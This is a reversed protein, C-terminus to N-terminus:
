EKLVVEWLATLAAESSASQRVVRWISDIATKGFDDFVAVQSKGRYFRLTDLGYAPSADFVDALKRAQRLYDRAAEERGLVLSYRACTALLAAVGKNLYCPADPKIMGGIATCLWLLVDLATQYEGVAAYATAFGTLQFLTIMLRRQAESLFAFSEEARDHEALIFGIQGDNLGEINYHKLQEVAADTEGLMLYVSAIRNRLRTEHISPDTNQAILECARNFLDLARRMAHKDHTELATMAYLDASQYVVDFRNPYKQLAKEAEAAGEDFRKAQKLLKITDVANGQTSIKWEYGLLVDVSTEFFAAMECILGIEPVSSGSEWKSVAGVTVGLAEALQEQTMRHEKRLLRINESIRIKM